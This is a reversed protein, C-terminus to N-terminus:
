KLRVQHPYFSILRGSIHFIRHPMNEYGKEALWTYGTQKAGKDTTSGAIPENYLVDGNTDYATIHYM